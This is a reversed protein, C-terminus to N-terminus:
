QGTEEVDVEYSAGNVTMRFSFKERGAPRLGEAIRPVSRFRAREEALSRLRAREDLAIALAEEFEVKEFRV